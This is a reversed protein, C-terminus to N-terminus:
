SPVTLRGTRRDQAETQPKPTDVKQSAEYDSILRELHKQDADSIRMDDKKSKQRAAPYRSM